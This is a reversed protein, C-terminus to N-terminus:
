KIFFFPVSFVQYLIYYIILMPLVIWIIFLVFLCILWLLTAILKYVLVVARMFFCIIRGERTYDGYMPKFMNRLWIGLALRRHIHFSASKLCFTSVKVLGKSYWWIPFYIIDWIIEIAIYKITTVLINDSMIIMKQKDTTLQLM